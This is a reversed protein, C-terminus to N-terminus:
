IVNLRNYLEDKYTKSYPILAAGIEIINQNTRIGTIAHLNITYSRHVQIFLSPPLKQLLQKLQGTVMHKKDATHIFCYKDYAEIYQIESYVLKLLKNNVKVYLFDSQHYIDRYKPSLLERQYKHIAIEIASSLQDETYPKRLYAEPFTAKVDSIVSGPALSTLYILPINFIANLKQAAQIGTIDGALDIDMLIIDPSIASILKTADAADPYIGVNHYGLNHLHMKLIDAHLEEDEFALVRIVAMSFIIDM